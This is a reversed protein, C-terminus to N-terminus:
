KQGTAAQKLAKAIKEVNGPRDLKALFAQWDKVQEAVFAKGKTTIRFVQAGSGPQILGSRELATTATSVAEKGRVEGRYWGPTRTDNQVAHLVEVCLRATTLEQASLEKAM